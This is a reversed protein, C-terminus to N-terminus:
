SKRLTYLPALVDVVSRTCEKVPDEAVVIETADLVTVSARVESALTFWAPVSM